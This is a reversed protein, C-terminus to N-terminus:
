SGSLEVEYIVRLSTYLFVIQTNETKQPERGPKRVAKVLRSPAGANSMDLPQVGEGLFPYPLLDCLQETGRPRWPHQGFGPLDLQEVRNAWRGRARARNFNNM